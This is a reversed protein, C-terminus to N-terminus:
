EQRDDVEALLFREAGVAGVLREGVEEGGCAPDEGCCDGGADGAGNATLSPQLCPIVKIV